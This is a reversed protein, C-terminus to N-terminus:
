GAVGLLARAAILLGPSPAYATVASAAGFAVTGILLLRKRGIRDGVNGMTVLLGALAFGYIDAIWLLQTASPNLSVVLKPVALHLVTLDISLLLMALCAIVLTGWKRTENM